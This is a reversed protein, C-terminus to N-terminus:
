GPATPWRRRSRHSRRRTACCSPTSTRPRSRRSRAWRPHARRTTRPSTASLTTRVAAADFSTGDAFEIGDRLPITVTRGGDSLSPLASALQPVIEGKADIDYLKECIANMVYRTYLSSSTTPDLVDPEASLGM